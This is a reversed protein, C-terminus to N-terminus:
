LACTHWPQKKIWNWFLISGAIPFYGPYRMKENVLVNIRFKRAPNVCGVDPLCIVDPVNPQGSLIVLCYIRPSPLMLAPKKRVIIVKKVISPKWEMAGVTYYNQRAALSLNLRHPLGDPIHKSDETIVCLQECSGLDYHRGTVYPRYTLVKLLFTAM